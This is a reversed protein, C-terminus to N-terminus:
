KYDMVKINGTGSRIAMVGERPIVAMAIAVKEEIPLASMTEMALIEATGEKLEVKFIATRNYFQVNRTFVIINKSFDVTPPIEDPMFAQWVPMFTKKDGFYGAATDQQGEPLRGLESVPYDGSWKDLLPIDVPVAKGTDITNTSACGSIYSSLVWLFALFLALKLVYLVDWQYKTAPLVM